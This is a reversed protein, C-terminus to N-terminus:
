NKKVNNYKKTFLYYDNLYYNFDGDEKGNVFCGIVKSTFYRNIHYKISVIDNAIGNKLNM